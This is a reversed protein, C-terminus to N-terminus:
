RGHCVPCTVHVHGSQKLFYQGCENCKEKTNDVIGFSPPYLEKSIRGTGHCMSCSSTPSSPSSKQSSNYSSGSSSDSFESNLQQIAQGKEIRFQTLTLDPRYRKAMMYEQQEQNAYQQMTYQPDILYDLSADHRFGNMQSANNNNSSQAKAQMVAAGTMLVTGVFESLFQGRRELQEERQQRSYALLEACEEKTDSPMGGVQQAREFDQIAKKYENRNLNSKGRAIYSNATPNISIAKTFENAAKKYKKKNFYDVGANYYSFANLSKNAKALSEELSNNRESSSNAAISVNLSRDKVPVDLEIGTYCVDEDPNAELLENLTLGYRSAILEFTEGRQVTHVVLSDQAWIFVPCILIIFIVFYKM